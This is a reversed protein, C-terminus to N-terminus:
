VRPTDLRKPVCRVLFAACVFFLPLAALTSLQRILLLLTDAGVGRSGMWLLPLFVLSCAVALRSRLLRDRRACKGALAGAVFAPLYQALRVDVGGHTLRNAFFFVLCLAGGCALILATRRLYFLWPAALYFLFIVEVFWISPPTGTLVNLFLLSKWFMWPPTIHAHLFGLGALVYMPYIRRFRRVYFGGVNRLNRIEHRGSLLMGSIFFFLGLVSVTLLQTVSNNFNLARTFNDLHWVGVIYLM